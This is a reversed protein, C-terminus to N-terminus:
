GFQVILTTTGTSPPLNVILNSVKPQQAQQTPADCGIVQFSAGAPSVIRVPMQEHGQHLVAESGSQQGNPFVIEAATHLNWRVSVPQTSIFTDEIRVKSHERDLTLRRTVNSLTPAYAESLNIDVTCNKETSLMGTIHAKAALAQNETGLSLTNHAETRLRYYTFRLKGFYEPLDYDDPGLDLAWRQGLADFVFSGLDLHGHNARNDGGKIGVYFARPDTWSSRMFAVDIAKFHADLPPADNPESAPLPPSGAVNAGSAWVLHFISPGKAKVVRTESDAFLPQQFRRALWYMEQAAEVNDHADAYNFNKILPGMSHVRFLGAQAFGPAGSIERDNGTASQLAAMMSSGYNSAYHWYAPGEIWGGDPAYAEMAYMVNKPAIDLVTLAEPPGGPDDHLIALAGVTLGGNCVLGWNNAHPKAWFANDAYQKLGPKLGFNVIKERITKREPETLEAYLWDYGLGAANALEAVDLFHPPHWDPFRCIIALENRAAELKRPDADLRYLGALTSIRDLARRSENLLRPGVLKYEAPRDKLLTEARKQLKDYAAQLRPDSSISKKLQAWGAADLHLRPHAAPGQAIAKLTAAHAVGCLSLLYCFNRRNIRTSHQVCSHYRTAKAM